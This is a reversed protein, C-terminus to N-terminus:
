KDKKKMSFTNSVVWPPESPDYPEMGDVKSSELVKENVKIGLGPKGKLKFYGRELTYGESLLKAKWDPWFAEFSEQILFNRVGTDINLTAATQIPGFANHFAVPVGFSDAIAAIKKGELIGLSNTVDPQIIDVLNQSIVRAFDAKNLLREGLAIPIGSKKRLVRLSHEMEPHLPEEIFFVNYKEMAKAVMEAAHLSFRGHCEILLDVSDGLQNRMEAVIAESRALQEGTIGDFADGFPDFKMATFGMKVVKKAKAVFDAPTICDSYWGNAYARMKRNMEGGLLRYVPTGLEKGILDWSAIEFASLAATHQMSKPLYFSDRYFGNLNEEVNFFDKGSFTRAVENMSERVSMTMFTTPAEGYGIQGDASTLRVLLITSSWPSSSEKGKSGLEFIEINRITSNMFVESLSGINNKVPM